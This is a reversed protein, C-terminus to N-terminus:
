SYSGQHGVTQRTIDLYRAAVQPPSLSGEPHYWIGIAQLMGLMARATDEPYSVHFIGAAIGEQIIDLLQQELKKRQAAYRKRNEPELYRLESDLSSGSARQTMSLVVAEVLHVFRSLPEDGAEALARDVRNLLNAMGAELAALLMAQKNEYHYYLAPVTVGVRQAIDRVSAGHYGKDLFADVAGTLIPSLELPETRRWDDAKATANM